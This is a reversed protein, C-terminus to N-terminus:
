RLEPFEDAYKLTYHVTLTKGDEGAADKLISPDILISDSVFSTEWPGLTQGTTCVGQLQNYFVSDEAPAVRYSVRLPVTKSTRNSLFFYLRTVKGPEVTVVEEKPELTADVGDLSRSEFRLRVTKAGAEDKAPDGTKTETAGGTIAGGSPKATEALAPGLLFPGTLLAASVLALVRTGAATAQNQHAPSGTM